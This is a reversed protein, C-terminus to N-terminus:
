LLPQYDEIIIEAIVRVLLVEPRLADEHRMPSFRNSSLIKNHFISNRVAYVREAIRKPLNSTGEKELDFTPAECFEVGNNKFYEVLGDDYRCLRDRLLKPVNYRRILDGLAVGEKVRFDSEERSFNALAKRLMQDIDSISRPDFDPSVIKESADKLAEAYTSTFLQHELVRYFNFYQHEPSTSSFATQYIYLIEEPADTPTRTDSMNTVNLLHYIHNGYQRGPQLQDPRNVRSLTASSHKSIIYLNADFIRKVTAIDKQDEKTKVRASKIRSGFLSLFEHFERKEADRIFWKGISRFFAFFEGSEAIKYLLYILYIESVEDISFIERNGRMVPISWADSYRLYSNSFGERVVVEASDGGMMIMEPFERSNVEDILGQYYQLDASIEVCHMMEELFIKDDNEFVVRVERDIFANEMVLKIYSKVDLPINM